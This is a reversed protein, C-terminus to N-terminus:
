SVAAEDSIPEGLDILQRLALGRGSNQWKREEYLQHIEHRRTSVM